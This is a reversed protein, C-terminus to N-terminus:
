KNEIIVSVARRNKSWVEEGTGLFEPREKGYSIIKIRSAEIGKSQLYRKVSAARKQGLAINYERTGREDAHGEILIGVETKQKLYKATLDLVEKAEATLDVRDFGFFVRDPIKVENDKVLLETKNKKNAKNAEEATNVTDFKKSACATALFFVIFYLFYKNKM